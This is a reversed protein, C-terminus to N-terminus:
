HEDEMLERVRLATDAVFSLDMGEGPDLDLVIQDATEIDDITANWPHLEVADLGGALAILGDVTDVWVRVGEGGERKEITPVRM